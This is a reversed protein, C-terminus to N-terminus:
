VPPPVTKFRFEPTAHATDNRDVSVKVDAAAPAVRLLLGGCAVLGFSALRKMFNRTRTSAPALRRANSVFTGVRARLQPMEFVL